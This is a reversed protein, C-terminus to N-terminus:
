VKKVVLPVYEGSIRKSIAKIVEVSTGKPIVNKNYIGNVFNDEPLVGILPVGIADMVEDLDKIGGAKLSQ